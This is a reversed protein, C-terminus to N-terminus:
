YEVEICEVPEVVWGNEKLLEFAEDINWTEPNREKVQSVADAWANSVDEPYIKEGETDIKTIRLTEQYEGSHVDFSNLMFSQM